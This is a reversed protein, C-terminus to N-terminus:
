NGAWKCLKTLEGHVNNGFHKQKETWKPRILDTAVVLVYLLYVFALSAARVYVCCSRRCASYTTLDSPALIGLRQLARQLM